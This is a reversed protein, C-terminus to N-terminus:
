RRIKVKFGILKRPQDVQINLISAALSLAEQKSTATPIVLAFDIVDFFSILNNSFEVMEIEGWLADMPNSYGRRLEVARGVYVHKETYQRGYKRLEWKKMGSQFWSYPGNSLPVFLRKNNKEVM